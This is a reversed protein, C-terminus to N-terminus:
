ELMKLEKELEIQRMLGMIILDKSVLMKDTLYVYLALALSLLAFFVCAISLIIITAM